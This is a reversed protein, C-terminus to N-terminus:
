HEKVDAAPAPKPGGTHLHSWDNFSVLKFRSRVYNVESISANDPRFQGWAAPSAGFMAGFVQAIVGAHTVLVIRQGAHFQAIHEIRHLCRERFEQYSEGGPWRFEPNNQRLNERFHEPYRQQVEGVSCGDVEGCHIERLDAAFRLPLASRRAIARATEAARQSPSSYVAV